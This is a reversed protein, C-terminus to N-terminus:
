RWTSTPFKESWGRVIILSRELKNLEYRAPIVKKFWIIDSRVWNYTNNNSEVRQCLVWDISCICIHLLSQLCVGFLSKSITTASTVQILVRRLNCSFSTSCKNMVYQLLSYNNSIWYMIIPNINPFCQRRFYKLICTLIWKSVGIM